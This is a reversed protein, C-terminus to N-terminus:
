PSPSLRTAPCGAWTEGEPVNRTIVAGAGIRAGDGVTRYPLVTANLGVKVRSGLICHGGIVAGTAIECDAGVQADHGIHSKALLLTRAGVTTADKIGNDITVYPQVVVDEGLVVPISPKSPDRLWDRHEPVRGIIATHHIQSPM